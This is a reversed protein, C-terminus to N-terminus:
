PKNTIEKIECVRLNKLGWFDNQSPVGAGFYAKQMIHKKELLKSV